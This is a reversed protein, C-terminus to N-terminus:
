RLLDRARREIEVALRVDQDTVKGGADHTSLACLVKTFRIDIDPHHNASEAAEAVLTVFRIGDMFRGFQFTKALTDGRRAWGPLTALARQIEIDSLPATLM